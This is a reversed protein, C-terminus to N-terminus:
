SAPPQRERVLRLVLHITSLFHYFMWSLWAPDYDTKQLTDHHRIGFQNAIRFLDGEDKRTLVAKLAPRLFELVEALDRVAARRDERTSGRMRYKHVASMVRDEVNEPDHEPLPADMLATLGPGGLRLIEGDDSLEYGDRYAALLANVQRLYHAQGNKRNFQRFHWGCQNYAHYDSDRDGRPESVYDFAFEIVDFLDDEDYDQRYRGDPPWLGPKRLHWYVFAEVDQGASGPVLGADICDYGFTEQFYGGEELHQYLSIFFHELLTLDLRGGTPHTGTRHSHYRRPKGFPGESSVM